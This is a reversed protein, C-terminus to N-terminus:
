RCAFYIRSSSLTDVAIRTKNRKRAFCWERPGRVDVFLLLAYIMCRSFVWLAKVAKAATKPVRHPFTVYHLSIKAEIFKFEAKHVFVTLCRLVVFQKKNINQLFLLWVVVLFKWCRPISARKLLASSDCSNQAECGSDVNTCENQSLFYQFCYPSSTQLKLEIDFHLLIQFRALLFLTEFRQSVKNARQVYLM